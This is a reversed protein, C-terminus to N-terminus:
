SRKQAYYTNLAGFSTFMANEAENYSILLATSTIPDEANEAMLDLTAAFKQMANLIGVQKELADAPVTVRSTLNAAERYNQAVAKLQALYAPDRTETYRGFIELEYTKNKLLPTFSKQLAERYVLMRARSTDPDTPISSTSYMSYAVRPRISSAINTAVQRGIEPTYMDNNSLVTYFAAIGGIANTGLRSIEEPSSSTAQDIEIHPDLSDTDDASALTSPVATHAEVTNGTVLGYVHWGAVGIVALASIVASIVLHSFGSTYSRENEM